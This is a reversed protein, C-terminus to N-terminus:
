GASIHFPRKEAGEPLGKSLEAPKLKGAGSPLVRKPGLSGTTRWRSIAWAWMGGVSSFSAAPKVPVLPVSFGRKSTKSSPRPLTTGAGSAAPKRLSGIRAATAWRSFAL